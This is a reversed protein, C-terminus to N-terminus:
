EQPLQAILIEDTNPNNLEDFSDIQVVNRPADSFDDVRVVPIEGFDDVQSLGRGIQADDFNDVNAQGRLTARQFDDVQIISPKQKIISDEYGITSNNQKLDVQFINREKGALNNQERAVGVAVPQLACRLGSLRQQFVGGSFTSLISTLRYIGSFSSNELNPNSLGTTENYDVPTKLNMQIYPATLNYNITGDPMFPTTYSQGQRVKDQWYADSTPIYAPDGVIQMDLNVLDVGDSMLSTFLDKARARKLTDKTNITNGEVSSTVEKTLPGFQDKLGVTPFPKGTGATMIQMFGTNFKLQFDLVETNQGSFIYDYKKHFGNGVPKSKKAWPMDSYYVNNKEVVYSVHYKYRGDKGDYGTGRGSSTKIVPRIKFWNIPRGSTSFQTPNDEINQDMYDSHLIVLNILKSIDTGKNIKFTRTNKDLTVGQSIGRVYAEYQKRDGSETKNGDDTPTPTNLADYIQEINLKSNAIESAIVFDYTDHFEAAPPVVVPDPSEKVFYQSPKTRRVQGDTLVEALNKHQVKVKKTGVRVPAGNASRFRPDVVTGTRESEEVTATVENSFIDGITTAKLEINFPIVGTISGMIHGAFPIAEVRYQTGASTVEFTMNTIRIPIYKPLSPSSIPTGNEDYGKFKIELLYPAHIYRERTSALVTGALRRLRELFTVGRPETLNFRIGTANTNQKFKSPGVAINEIELDDIFIDNSFETGANDLGTGGSRALLFSNPPTLATQPSNPSRTMDVYSKSNMMYLALNYSVSNFQNLENPVSDIKVRSLDETFNGRTNSKADKSSNVIIKKNPSVNLGINPGTESNETKLTDNSLPGFATLDTFVNEPADKSVSQRRTGTDKNTIDNVSVDASSSYSDFDSTFGNASFNNNKSANDVASNYSITTNNPINIPNTKQEFLSFDEPAPNNFKKFSRYVNQSKVIKGFNPSGPVSDIRYGERFLQKKVSPHVNDLASKDKGEFSDLYLQQNPNFSNGSM